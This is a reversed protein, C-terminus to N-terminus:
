LFFVLFRMLRMWCDLLKSEVAEPKVSLVHLRVHPKNGPGVKIQKPHQKCFHSVPRILERHGPHRTFFPQLEETGVSGGRENIFRILDQLIEKQKQPSLGEESKGSPMASVELSYHDGDGMGISIRSPHQQCFSKMNKVLGRHQPHKMYFHGLKNSLISGGQEVVFRMLDQLVEEQKASLDGPVSEPEHLSDQVRICYVPGGISTISLRGPHQAVFTKMKKILAQHGPHKAYFPALKNSLISGGQSQIHQILDQLIEEGKETPM